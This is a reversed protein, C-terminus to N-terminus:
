RLEVHTWYRCKKRMVSFFVAWGAVGSNRRYVYKSKNKALVIHSQSIKFVFNISNCRRHLWLQEVFEFRFLSYRAFSLLSYHIVWFFFIFPIIFLLYETIGSGGGISNIKRIVAQIMRFNICSTLNTVKLTNEKKKRCNLIITGTHAPM